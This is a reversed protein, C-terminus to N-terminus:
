RLDGAVFERKLELGVLFFFIALLGDAAWHGVSLKLHWPEYGFEFDRLAFYSDSFPSNAWILALAAAIILLIGGVTEKRLIEGIRLYEPYSSRGLVNRPQHSSM